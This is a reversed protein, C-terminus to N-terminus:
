SVSFLGNLIGASFGLMLMAQLTEAPMITSQHWDHPCQLRLKMRSIFHDQM